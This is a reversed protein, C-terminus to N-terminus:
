PDVAQELRRLAHVLDHLEDLTPELRALAEVAEARTVTGDALMRSLVPITAAQAAIAELAEAAVDGVDDTPPVYVGGDIRAAAQALARTGALDLVGDAHDWGPMTRRGHLAGHATTTSAPTLRRDSWEAAIADYPVGGLRAALRLLRALM